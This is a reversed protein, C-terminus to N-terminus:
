FSSQFYSIVVAIKHTFFSSSHFKSILHDRKVRRELSPTLPSYGPQTRETAQKQIAGSSLITNLNKPPQFLILLSTQSVHFNIFNLKVTVTHLTDSMRVSRTHSQMSQLEGPEEVMPSGLCSYQLPYGHREGPLRGWGSILGLEGANCASEKGDSGGPLGWTDSLLTKRSYM